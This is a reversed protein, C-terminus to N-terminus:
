ICTIRKDTFEILGMEFLYKLPEWIDPNSILGSKVLDNSIRRVILSYRFGQALRRLIYGRIAANDKGADIFDTM